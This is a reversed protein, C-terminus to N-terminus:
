EGTEEGLDLVLKWKNFPEGLKFRYVVPFECMTKAALKATSLTKFVAEVYTGDDMVAYFYAYFDNVSM